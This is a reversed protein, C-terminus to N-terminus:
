AEAGEEDEASLSEENETSLSEEDEDYEETTLELFIDELSMEVTEMGLLVWGGQVIAEM